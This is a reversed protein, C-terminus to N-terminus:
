ASHLLCLCQTPIVFIFFHLAAAFSGHQVSRSSSCHHSGRGPTYQSSMYSASLSTPFAPSPQLLTNPSFPLPMFSIGISPIRVKRIGDLDPDTVLSHSLVAVVVVVTVVAVVVVVDTVVVIVVVVVVAVVVVVEADLVVVVM